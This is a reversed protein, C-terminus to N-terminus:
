SITNLFLSATCHIMWITLFELHSGAAWWVGRQASPLWHQPFRRERHLQLSHQRFLICVTHFPLWSLLSVGKSSPCPSPQPFRSEESPECNALLYSSFASHPPFSSSPLMVWHMWTVAQLQSHFHCLTNPILRHLNHRWRHGPPSWSGAFSLLRWGSPEPSPMTHM